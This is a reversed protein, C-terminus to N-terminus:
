GGLQGILSVVTHVPLGVVNTYSGEIRPIFRAARGQIAYAGAKDRGEGTSVYWDIEADSLPAFWVSTREVATLEKTTNRVSVGTLVEHVRGSLRRLMGASERDDAPKGLIDGSLVVATDAGLIVPDRHVLRARALARASKESALRLVYDEPRHDAGVREDVDVAQVDFVLGTTSLLERRRPSASALILRM